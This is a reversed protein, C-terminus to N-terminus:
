PSFSDRLLFLVARFRCFKKQPEPSSQTPLIADDNVKRSRKNRQKKLSAGLQNQKQRHRHNAPKSIRGAFLCETQNESHRKRNM